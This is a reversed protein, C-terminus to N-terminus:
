LYQPVRARLVASFRQRNTVIITTLRFACADGVIAEERITASMIRPSRRVVCGMTPFQQRTGSVTAHLLRRSYTHRVGM